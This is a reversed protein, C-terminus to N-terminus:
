RRTYPNARRSFSNEPDLNPRVVKEVIGTEIRHKEVHLNGRRSRMANVRAKNAHRAAAKRRRVISSEAASLLMKQVDRM